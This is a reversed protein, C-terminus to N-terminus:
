IGDREAEPTSVLLASAANAATIAARMTQGRALGAALAGVFEDGAGHTSAVRVPIASLAF